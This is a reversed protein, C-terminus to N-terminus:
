CSNLTENRYVRFIDELKTTILEALLSKSLAKFGDEMLNNTATRALTNVAQRLEADSEATMARVIVALYPISSQPTHSSGIWENTCGDPGKGSHFYPNSESLIFKRTKKQISQDPDHQPSFYEMYQLSLLSPVNADDMLNAGGCADVEYAYIKGFEDHQVVGHTHIGRDISDALDECQQARIDDKISRFIEATQRLSVVMMQNVPILYGFETPDGSPRFGTWVLGDGQCVPQGEGDDKLEPYRYLSEAHNQERVVTQLILDVGHIWNSDLALMPRNHQQYFQFLKYSLRLHYALNDLEFNHKAVHITRGYKYDSDTLRQRGTFDHDLFLRFSASYPDAQLFLSQRRLLGEVLRLLYHSQSLLPMYPDVQASSDRLGMLVTDGTAVFTTGDSLPFTTQELTLAYSNNFIDALTDLNAQRLRESIRKQYQRVPDPVILNGVQIGVQQLQQTFNQHFLQVDSPLQFDQSQTEASEIVYEYYSEYLPDYNVDWFIGNSQYRYQHDAAVDAPLGFLYSPKQDTRVAHGFTYELPTTMLPQVAIKSAKKVIVGVAGQKKKKQKARLQLRESLAIRSHELKAANDHVVRMLLVSVFTWFILFGGCAILALTM